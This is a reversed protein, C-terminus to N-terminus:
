KMTLSVYWEDIADLIRRWWRTEIGRYKAPAWARDCKRCRKISGGLMVQAFVPGKRDIEWKHWCFVRKMRILWDNIYEKM